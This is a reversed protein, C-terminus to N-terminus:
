TLKITLYSHHANFGVKVFVNPAIYGLTGPRPQTESDVFVFGAETSGYGGVLVGGLRKSATEHMEETLASGGVLVVCSSLLGQPVNPNACLAM